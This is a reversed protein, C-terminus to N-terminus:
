VGVPTNDSGWSVISVFLFLCLFFLNTFYRGDRPSMVIGNDSHVLAMIMPLTVNESQKAFELIVHYPMISLLTQLIKM